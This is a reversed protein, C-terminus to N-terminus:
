KRGLIRKTQAHVLVFYVVYVVIIWIFSIIVFRVIRNFDVSAPADGFEGRFSPLNFQLAIFSHFSAIVLPILFYAVGQVLISLNRTKVDVGLQSLTLYRKESEVVDIMQQLFLIALSVLLFIGGIYLSVFNSFISMLNSNVRNWNSTTVNFGSSSSMFLIDYEMWGIHQWRAVQRVQDRVNYAFEWFIPEAVQENTDFDFLYHHYAYLTYAEELMYYEWMIESEIPVIETLDFGPPFVLVVQDFMLLMHSTLLLAEPVIELVLDFTTDLINIQETVQYGVDVELNMALLLIENEAPTILETNHYDFIARVDEYMYGIIWSIWDMVDVALLSDIRQNEFRFQRLLFIDEDDVIELNEFDPTYDFDPSISIIGDFAPRYRMAATTMYSGVRGVVLMYISITMMLTILSLSLWNLHLRRTLQRLTFINLDYFTIRKSRNVIFILLGALSLFFAFTGIVGFIIALIIEGMGVGTIFLDLNLEFTLMTFAWYGLGIMAVVFTVGGLAGYFKSNVRQSNDGSLLNLIKSKAAIAINVISISLFVVTFYLFTRLLVSWSFAFTLGLLYIDLLHFILTSM